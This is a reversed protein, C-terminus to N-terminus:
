LFNGADIDNSRLNLNRSTCGKRLKAQRLFGNCLASERDLTTDSRLVRSLAELRICTLNFHVSRGASVTDAQISRRAKSSRLNRYTNFLSIKELSLGTSMGQPDRM